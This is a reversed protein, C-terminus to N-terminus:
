EKGKLLKLTKENNVTIKGSNWKVKHSTNGWLNDKFTETIVGRKNLYGDLHIKDGVKM